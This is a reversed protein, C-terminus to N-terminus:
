ATTSARQQKAFNKKAKMFEILTVHGDGSSDCANFIAQVVDDAVSPDLEKLVVRIEAMELSGGGDADARQFGDMIKADDAAAFFAQVLGPLEAVRAEEAAKAAAAEEAAKAAAAEEAAKAAAEEAAKAAAAEEAAKAAAAEESAKAAAEKAAKAAAAEKSAREAAEEAAKAAAAEQAAKAVTDKTDTVKSSLEAAGPPHRVGPYGTIGWPIAAPRARQTDPSRVTLIIPLEAANPGHARYSSSALRRSAARSAPSDPIGTIGWPIAVTRVSESGRETLIIPATPATAEASKRPTWGSADGKRPTWMQRSM